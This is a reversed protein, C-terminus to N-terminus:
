KKFRSFKGACVRSCFKNPKKRKRETDFSVQCFDCTYTFQPKHDDYLEWVNKFEYNSNAWEFEITLDEKYLVEVEYGLSEALETKKDVSSSNEYGKMEYITNGVIFDPIYKVGNGELVGEFREYPLNNDDRYIVWALEYSSGCYTGNYYGSKSNGSGPRYGGINPNCKPSCYLNVSTPKVTFEIGCGVCKRTEYVIAKVKFKGKNLPSRGTPVGKLKKSVADKFEQTRPGRSNACSRSCFRGTGYTGDHPKNCKECNM